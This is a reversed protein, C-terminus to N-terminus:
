SHTQIIYSNPQCNDVRLFEAACFQRGKLVYQIRPQQGRNSPELICM